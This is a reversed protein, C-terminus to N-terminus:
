TRPARCVFLGVGRQAVSIGFRNGPGEPGTLVTPSGLGTTSGRLITVQGVFMSAREATVIVDCFGDRDVDRAAGVAGGFLARPGAMTDFLNQAHMAPVSMSSGRFVYARGTYMDVRPASVVMDGYGDGNSDGAAVIVTGFDSEMGTTGILTRAPISTLGVAAGHYVHVRGTGNDVAPAGIAFDPFGDGNLDGVGAVSTGLRGGMIDSFTVSANRALGTPSGLYLYARGAGVAAEPAAVVLDSDGDGDIDGVGALSQGFRTNTMMPGDLTVAPMTAVGRGGGHFVYARGNRAGYAGVALDNYGDANVDGVAAVAFGFYGREGDPGVLTSMAVLGLGSANGHFVYVVGTNNRAGPAGVAADTYGDGNFDSTALSWGFQTSPLTSPSPAPDDIFQRRMPTTGGSSGRLVYIRAGPFGLLPAGVLVEAYGDADFDPNDGWATSPTTAAPEAPGTVYVPWTDTNVGARVRWYVLGVPLDERVRATGMDSTIRQLVM